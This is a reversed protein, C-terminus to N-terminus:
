GSQGVLRLFEDENMLALGLDRAKALKSGPSDGLVVHTVKRSIASAVQGGLMKVRAKAENRSLRSLSGTFLFLTGALPGAGAQPATEPAPRVGLGDLEALMAHTAPDCLADALSAAMQQGIGEIALLDEESAALLRDLDGFRQALLQATVEGVHRIGLAALLRSLPPRRSNAIAEVVNAASKEGWGPLPALQEPRLRFIDPIDAVLGAAVLQEVAKKGLGEIDLGASGAFHILARLRQAPCLPNACRRVAEGEGRELPFDCEPCREPMLIPQEGGTRKERVAMVVAPIVDGAREVLVTDGILLDKRRIEDENHLTARRVTVGGIRVPELIAVPTVAGTRGVQFEVGLLRTADQIAPFKAAVAWRPSRAKAGLRRQLEFDNVKVVMGDIDYALTHRLALLREFETAVEAMSNWLRVHPNIKFGLGGLWALLAFQDRCPLGAPDSVGYAYFDLPRSATIKPDLQRLSGAAANRPNAFLAEGAEARQDNLARFAALGIFVEGRVELRPPFGSRLRLPIAAVTKLNATIEEGNLGDGRTSGLVLLGNEYILEVALGDLKPETVYSLPLAEDKLFRRLREEFLTLDAPGFANELSLMPVRHPATAFEALPPGGVRQSPSDPTVLAPFREELGLLEQFLRDYEADPILPADLAHYRWAHLHLEERLARLRRSASEQDTM